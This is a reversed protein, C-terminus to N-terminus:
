IGLRSRAQHNQQLLAAFRELGAQELNRLYGQMNIPPSRLRQQVLCVAECVGNPDLKVLHSLFDDPTIATVGHPDLAAAPFDRINQTIIIDCRGKIAAALVHNDQQDPLNLSKALSKYRTVLCDAVARDILDRTREIRDRSIDPRADELACMWEKHITVTWKARYLGSVALQVFLDRLRASFLVNADLIAATTAM